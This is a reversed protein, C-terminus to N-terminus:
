FDDDDGAAAAPAATKAPSTKKAAPASSASSNNASGGGNGSVKTIEATAFRLDAGANFAVFSVQGITKEDGDITVERTYTEPRGELIVRQGKKLSAAVNQGLDGFVTWDYWDTKENDRGGNTTVAVRLRCRVNGSPATVLEPDRGLTGVMTINSM